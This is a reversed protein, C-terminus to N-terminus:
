SDEESMALAARLRSWDFAPGPDTKRGPAIDSHGCIREPTIAPYERQLQRTLAILSHYQADTFPLDDTGELEIGLWDLLRWGGGIERLKLLNQDGFKSTVWLEGLSEGGGDLGFLFGIPLSGGGLLGESLGGGLYELCHSLVG